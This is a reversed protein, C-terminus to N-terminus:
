VGLLALLSLRTVAEQRLVVILFSPQVLLGAMYMLKFAHQSIALYQTSPTRLTSPPINVNLQM